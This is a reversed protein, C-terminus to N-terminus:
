TRRAPILRRQESRKPHNKYGPHSAIAMATQRCKPSCYERPRRASRNVFKRRCNVYCCTRAWQHRDRHAEIMWVGFAVLVEPSANPLDLDFQLRGSPDLKPTLKLWLDLSSDKWTRLTAKRGQERWLVSRGHERAQAGL